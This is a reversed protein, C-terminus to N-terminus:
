GVGAGGRAIRFRFAGAAEIMQMAFDGPGFPAAVGGDPVAGGAVISASAAGGSELALRLARALADINIV